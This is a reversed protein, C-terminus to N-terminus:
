NSNNEHISQHFQWTRIAATLFVLGTFTWALPNFYKPLLAMLIFFCFAEAREMIGTSYHFSKEGSNESFIGIVLFTTVCLLVSGLMWLAPIARSVPNVLLLGLIVSFEVLRDATIDM